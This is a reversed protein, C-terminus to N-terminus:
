VDDGEDREAQFSGLLCQSDPPPLPNSISQRQTEAAFSGLLSQSDLRPGLDGSM